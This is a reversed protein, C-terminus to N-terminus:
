NSGNSVGLRQKHYEIQELTDRHLQEIEKASWRHPQKIMKILEDVFDRGYTLEMHRTYIPHVTEMDWGNCQRCQPNINEEILRTSANKAAIYHGGQMDTYHRIVGCSVCVCMGNSDAAKLRVLLQLAKACDKSLEAATKIKKRRTTSRTKRGAGSRKTMSSAKSKTM